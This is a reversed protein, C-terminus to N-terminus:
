TVKLIECERRLQSCLSLHPHLETKLSPCTSTNIATVSNNIETWLYAKIKIFTNPMCWQKILKRLCCRVKPHRVLSLRALFQSKDHSKKCWPMKARSYNVSTKLLTTFSLYCVLCLLQNTKSVFRWMNICIM